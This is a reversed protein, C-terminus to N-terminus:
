ASCPDQSMLLLDSSSLDFRRCPLSCGLQSPLSHLRVMTNDWRASFVLTPRTPKSKPFFSLFPQGSESKPTQQLDVAFPPHARATRCRPPPFPPLSTSSVLDELRSVHDMLIFTSPTSPCREVKTKAMQSCLSSLLSGLDARHIPFSTLDVNPNDGEVAVRAGLVGCSGARSTYFLM